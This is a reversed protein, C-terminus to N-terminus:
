SWPLLSILTSAVICSGCGLPVGIEAIRVCRYRSAYIVEDASCKGYTNIVGARL